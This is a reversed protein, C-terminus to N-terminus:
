SFGLARWMHLAAVKDDSSWARLQYVGQELARETAREVMRSAVGRRRWDSDVQITYIYGETTHELPPPLEDWRVSLLGVLKGSDSAVITFGDDVHMHRAASEGWETSVMGITAQTAYSYTLETASDKVM